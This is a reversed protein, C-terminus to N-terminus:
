GQFEYGPPVEVPKPGPKQEGQFNTVVPTAVIVGMRALTIDFNQGTEALTEGHAHCIVWERAAANWGWCSTCIDQKQNLDWYPSYTRQEKM